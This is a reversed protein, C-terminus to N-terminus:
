FPLEYIRQDLTGSGVAWGYAELNRQVILGEQTRQYPLPQPEAYGQREWYSKIEQQKGHSQFWMLSSLSVETKQNSCTLVGGQSAM